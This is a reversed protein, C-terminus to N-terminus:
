AQAKRELWFGPGYYWVRETQGGGAEGRHLAAIPVGAARSRQLAGLAEGLRKAAADDRGGM